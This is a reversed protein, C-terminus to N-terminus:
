RPLVETNVAELGIAAALADLMFVSASFWEKGGQVNTSSGREVGIADLFQHIRFEAQQPTLIESSYVRLIVPDEPMGAQRVQDVVRRWVGKSTQGIKVRMRGTEVDDKHLTYHPFTYVYVGHAKDLFEKLKPADRVVENLDDVQAKASAVYARLRNRLDSLYVRTDESIDPNDLFYGISAGSQRALSSSTPVKGETLASIVVRLNAVASPSAAAGREAIVASSSQGAQIERYVAGLQRDDSTLLKSIELAVM